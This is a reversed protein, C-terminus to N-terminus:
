SPCADPRRNTTSTDARRRLEDRRQRRSAASAPRGTRRLARLPLARTSSAIELFRSARPETSTGCYPPHQGELSASARMSFQADRSSFRTDWPSFFTTWSRPKRSWDSMVACGILRLPVALKSALTAAELLTAIASTDLYSSGTFDIVIGASPAAGITEHLVSRLRPSSDVTVRGSVVVTTCAGAQRVDVSMANAGVSAGTTTAASGSSRGPADDAERQMRITAVRGRPVGPQSRAPPAVVPRRPAGHCLDRAGHDGGGPRVRRPHRVRLFRYQRDPCAQDRTGHHVRHRLRACDM